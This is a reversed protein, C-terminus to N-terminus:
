RAPSIPATRLVWVDRETKSPVLGAWRTCFRMFERVDTATIDGSSPGGAALMGYAHPARHPAPVRAQAARLEAAGRRAGDYVARLVDWVTIFGRVPLVVVPSPFPAIFITISPVNPAEPVAPLSKWHYEDRAALGFSCAASIPNTCITWLISAAGHPTLLPHLSVPQPTLPPLPIHAYPSRSYILPPPQDATWQPGNVGYATTQAMPGAGRYSDSHTQARPPSPHASRKSRRRADHTDEDYAAYTIGPM